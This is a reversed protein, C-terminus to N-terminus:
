PEAAAVTRAVTPVRLHCLLNRARPFRSVTVGLYVVHSFAGNEGGRMKKLLSSDLTNTLM